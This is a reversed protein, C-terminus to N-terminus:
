LQSARRFFGDIWEADLGIYAGIANVMPHNRQFETAGSLIMRANFQEVVDTINNVFSEMAPPIVGTQVAALADEMTIFNDLALQQFFQRDSIVSPVPDAEVVKTISHEELTADDWISLNGFPIIVASDGDGHVFDNTVEINNYFFKIIM